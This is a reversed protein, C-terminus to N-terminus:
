RLSGAITPYTGIIKRPLGAALPWEVAFPVQAATVKIV